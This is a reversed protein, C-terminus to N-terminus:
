NGSRTEEFWNQVVFLEGTTREAPGLVVLVRGDPAVDFSRGGVDAWDDVEVVLRAAGVELRGGETRVSASFLSQGSRFYLRTGDRSWRADGGRNSVLVPSGSAPYRELYLGSDGGRSAKYVLLRGDPSFEGHYEQDSWDSPFAESPGDPEPTMVHIHTAGGGLPSTNVAILNDPSASTSYHEWDGTTLRVVEGLGDPSIAYLNLPGDRESTFYVKAEDHSWTPRLGGNHTLRTQNGGVLDFLWVDWDLV